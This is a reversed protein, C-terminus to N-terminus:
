FGGAPKAMRSTPSKRAVDQRVSSPQPQTSQAPRSATQSVTTSTTPQPPPTPPEQQISSFGRRNQEAQEYGAPNEERSIGSRGADPAPASPVSPTTPQSVTQSTTQTPQQSPQRFQFGPYQPVYRRWDGVPSYANGTSPQAAPPTAAPETSPAAAAAQEPPQAPGRNFREQWRAQGRELRQAEREGRLGQIYDRRAQTYAFNKMIRERRFQDAM